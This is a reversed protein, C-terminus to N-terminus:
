GGQMPPALIMKEAEPDFEQMIDGKHADKGKVQYAYYGKKKLDNFTRKANAVEEENDADWIIKTDGKMGLVSMEPM